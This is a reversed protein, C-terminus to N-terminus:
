LFNEGARAQARAARAAGSKRCGYGNEADHGKDRFARSPAGTPSEPDRWDRAMIRRHPGAFNKKM